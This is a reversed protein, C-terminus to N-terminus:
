RLLLSQWGAASLCRGPDAGAQREGGDAVAAPNYLISAVDNDSAEGLIIGRKNADPTLFAIFADDNDEVTHISVIAGNEAKRLSISELEKAM